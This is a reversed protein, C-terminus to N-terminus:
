MILPTGSIPHLITPRMTTHVTDLDGGDEQYGHTPEVSLILTEGDEEMDWEMAEEMVEEMDWALDEGGDEEMDWAMVEELAM